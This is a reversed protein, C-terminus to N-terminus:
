IKGDISQKKSIYGKILSPFSWILPSKGRGIHSKFAFGAELMEPIIRKRVTEASYPFFAAIEEITEIRREPM